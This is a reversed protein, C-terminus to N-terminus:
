APGSTISYGVEALLDGAVAEVAAVDEPALTSRWDRTTTPPESLRTHFPGRRKNSDREYYRLMEANFEIGLFATIARLTPEPSAVIEEYRVELYRDALRRGQERGQSVLDVWRGAAEAITTPGWPVELLSAAVNRGDRIVHVFKAEPFLTALLSLHRVYFPTKEAYQRKGQTRAYVGYLVRLAGACDAPRAYSFAAQIDSSDVKWLKFTDREEVATLFNEPSFRRADDAFLGAVQPIFHSEYPIAIDPHTDLMTSLLTTGSRECGVVFPFVSLPEALVHEPVHTTMTESM